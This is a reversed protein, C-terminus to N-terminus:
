SPTEEHASGSPSQPCIGGTFDCTTISKKLFLPLSEVRFVITGGGGGGGGGGCM